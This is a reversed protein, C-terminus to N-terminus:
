VIRKLSDGLGDVFSKGHFAAFFNSSLSSLNYKVQLDSIYQYVIRSKFQSDPGDSWLFVNMHEYTTTKAWMNM